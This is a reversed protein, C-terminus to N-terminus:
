FKSADCQMTFVNREVPFVFCTCALNGRVTFIYWWHTGSGKWLVDVELIHHPVARLTLDQEMTYNVPDCSVVSLLSSPSPLSLFLSPPLFLFLYPSLISLFTPPVFHYVSSCYVICGFCLSYETDFFCSSGVAVTGENASQFTYM